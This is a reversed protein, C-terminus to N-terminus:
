YRKKKIGYMQATRGLAVTYGYLAKKDESLKLFFTRRGSTYDWKDAEFCVDMVLTQSDTFPRINLVQTKIRKPDEEYPDSIIKWIIYSTDKKIYLDFSYLYENVHWEGSYKGFYKKDLQRNVTPDFKIAPVNKNREFDFISLCEEDVKDLIFRALNPLFLKMKDEIEIRHTYLPTKFTVESVPIQTMKRLCDDSIFTCFGVLSDKPTSKKDNQAKTFSFIDDDSFRIKVECTTDMSIEKPTTYFFSLIYLNETTTDKTIIAGLNSTFFLPEIQLPVTSTLLAIYNGNDNREEIKQAHVSHFMVMCLLPLLKKM